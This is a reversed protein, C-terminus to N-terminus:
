PLQVLRARLHASRAEAVISAGVARSPVGTELVAYDNCDLQAVEAQVFGLGKVHALATQADPADHFRGLEVALGAPVQAACGGTPVAAPHATFLAFAGPRETLMTALPHRCQQWFASTARDGWLTHEEDSELLVLLSARPRLQACSSPPQLEVKGAYYFRLRSDETIITRTSALQPEVATLEASFDGGLALDRLAARDGLGSVFRHWGDNGLSSIELGGLAGLLLVAAAPVAVARADLASAGALAPLVARVILLLLPPWAASLLRVDYVSYVIWLLLPPAAWVLLRALELRDAVAEAPAALGLLLSAALLLVLASRVPGGSGAVIGAGGAVHAGVISWVFAVPLAVLVAPRHPQRLRLVAYVLAFLLLLRLDAGLWSDDLLADRRHSAALAGYFSDKACATLFSFLGVHSLQAQIGDYVLALAIGGGIAAAGPARRRVTARDGLLVAIGLGVLSALATPKTLVALCAALAVLPFRRTYLLAATAAVLAAVPVDTLGSVVYHEFPATALLLALGLASAVVRYPKRASGAAAWALSAALVAAFVLGLVRALAEHFGFVRWLTGELFYVLTRHYEIPGDTPFRVRPWHDSIERAWTGFSLADWDGLPLFVAVLLASAFVAVTVAAGAAGIWRFARPDDAAM